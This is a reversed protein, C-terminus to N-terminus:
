QNNGRCVSIAALAGLAANLLGTAGVPWPAAEFWFLGCIAALAGVACAMSRFRMWALLCALPGTMSALAFALVVMNALSEM